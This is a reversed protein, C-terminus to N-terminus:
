IKNIVNLVCIKASSRLYSNELIILLRIIESEYFVKIVSQSAAPIGEKNLEIMM